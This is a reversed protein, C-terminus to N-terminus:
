LRSVPAGASSKSLATSYDCANETVYTERSMSIIRGNDARFHWRWRRGGAVTFKEYKM